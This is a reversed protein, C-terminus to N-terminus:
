CNVSKDLIQITLWNVKFRTLQKSNKSVGKSFVHLPGVITVVKPCKVDKIKQLGSMRNQLRHVKRKAIGLGAKKNEV